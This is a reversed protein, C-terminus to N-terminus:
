NKPGEGLSVLIEDIERKRLFPANLSLTCVLALRHSKISSHGPM